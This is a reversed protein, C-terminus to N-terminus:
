FYFVLVVVVIVLHTVLDVHVVLVFHHISHCESRDGLNGNPPPTNSLDSPLLGAVVNDSIPYIEM